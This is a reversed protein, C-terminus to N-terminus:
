SITKATMKAAMATLAASKRIHNNCAHAPELMAHHGSKCLTTKMGDLEEDSSSGECRPAAYIKHAQEPDRGLAAFM